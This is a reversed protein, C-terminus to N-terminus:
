TYGSRHTSIQVHTWRTGSHPNVATPKRRSVPPLAGEKTEARLSKRKMKERKRPSLGSVPRGTERPSAPFLRRRPQKEEVARKLYVPGSRYQEGGYAEKLSGSRREIKSLHFSSHENVVDQKRSCTSGSM